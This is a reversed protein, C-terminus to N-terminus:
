CDHSMIHIVTGGKGTIKRHIAFGIVAAAAAAAFMLSPKDQLGVSEKQCVFFTFTAELYFQVSFM